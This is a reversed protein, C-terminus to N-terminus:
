IEARSRRGTEGAMESENSAVLGLVFCCCFFFPLSSHFLPRQWFLAISQAESSFPSILPVNPGTARRWHRVCAARQGRGVRKRKKEEKCMAVANCVKVSVIRFLRFCLSFISGKTYRRNWNKKKRKLFYLFSISFFFYIFYFIGRRSQFEGRTNGNSPLTCDNFQFNWVCCSFATM